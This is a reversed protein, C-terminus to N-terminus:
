AGWKRPDEPDRNRVDSAQRKDSDPPKKGLVGLDVVAMERRPAELLRLAGRERAQV